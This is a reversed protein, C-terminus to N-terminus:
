LSLTQLFRNTFRNLVYPEQAERCYQHSGSGEVLTWTSRGQPEGRGSTPGYRCSNDESKEVTSTKVRLGPCPVQAIGRLVPDRSFKAM